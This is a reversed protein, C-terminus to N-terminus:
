QIVEEEEEEDEEEEHIINAEVLMLSGEEISKLINITNIISIDAKKEKMLEVLSENQIASDLLQMSYLGVKTWEPHRRSNFRIVKLGGEEIIEDSNEESASLKVLIKMGDEQIPKVNKHQNMERLISPIGDNEVIQLLCEEDNILIKFLGLVTQSIEQNKSTFIQSELIKPILNLQAIDHICNPESEAMKCIAMIASAQCVESKIDIIHAFMEMGKNKQIEKVYQDDSSAIRGLAVACHM